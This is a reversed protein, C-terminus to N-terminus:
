ACSRIAPNGVALCGAVHVCQTEFFEDERLVLWNLRQIGARKEDPTQNIGLMGTVHAYKRKDESFNKRGMTAVGYSDADAQTATIVLCHHAQSLARLQKWTKNIQDRGEPGAGQPTALIDAYDIVVVDPVWGEREWGQCIARVGGVPITDNPHCSLRLYTDKSKVHRTLAEQMGAYAAQWSLMDTYAREEHEATAFMDEEGRTISTPYLITKQGLPRGAARAAWRRMIQGQSMDGVEFFAVRRRQMAARWAIDLLWWTKGRKEPGMFAIFADRGLSHGFFEGLAGPYTILADQKEAFAQQLAAQDQMVDIGGSGNLEVRGYQSLINTAGELDGADLCAEIRNTLARLGVKNFHADAVDVIYAANQSEGEAFEASCSTLFNEVLAITDKQDANREAWRGFQGEIARGPAAGYRGHYAVCWGAVLNAWPSAFLGGDTGQRPWRAAIRGCVVPDTVMGIVIKREDAGSRREIHM